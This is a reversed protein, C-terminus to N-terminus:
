TRPRPKRFSINMPARALTAKAQAILERGQKEKLAAEALLAEKGEFVALGERRLIWDWLWVQETARVFAIWRVISITHTTRAESTYANLQATTVVEDVLLDSMLAAIVPATKGSERIALGMAQAFERKLDLGPRLTSPARVPFYEVGGFLDGQDPDHSRKAM